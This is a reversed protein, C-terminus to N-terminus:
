TPRDFQNAGGPEIEEVYVARGLTKVSNYTGVVSCFASLFLISIDILKERSPLRYWKLKLHFFCPLIFALIAGTINGTLGMLYTFYPLTLACGLM